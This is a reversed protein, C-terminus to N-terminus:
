KPQSTFLFKVFFFFFYIFRHHEHSLQIQRMLLSKLWQDESRTATLFYLFINCMVIISHCFYVLYYLPLCLYLSLCFLLFYFYDDTSYFNVFNKIKSKTYKKKETHRYKFADYPSCMISLKFALSCFVCRFFFNNSHAMPLRIQDATLISLPWFFNLHIYWFSSLFGVFFFFSSLLMLSAFYTLQRNAMENVTHWVM